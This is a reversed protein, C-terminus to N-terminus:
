PRAVTCKLTKTKQSEFTISLAEEPRQLQSALLPDNLSAHIYMHRMIFDYRLVTALFVLCIEAKCAPNNCTYHALKISCRFGQFTDKRRSKSKPPMITERGTGRGMCGKYSKRNSSVVNLPIQYPEPNEPSQSEKLLRLRQVGYWM